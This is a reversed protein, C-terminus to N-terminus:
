SFVGRLSDEHARLGRTTPGWLRSGFSAVGCCGLASVLQPFVHFATSMLGSNSLSSLGVPVVMLFMERASYSQHTRSVFLCQAYWSTRIPRVHAPLM